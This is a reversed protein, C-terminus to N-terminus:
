LRISASKFYNLPEITGNRNKKLNSTIQDFTISNNLYAMRYSTLFTVSVLCIIGIVCFKVLKLKVFSNVFITVLYVFPIILFIVSGFFARLPTEPALALSYAAAISGIFFSSVFVFDKMTLIKLILLLILLSLIGILLETYNNFYISTVQRLNAIFKPLTIIVNSRIKTGTAELVSLSGIFGAVLAVLQWLCVKRSRFSFYCFFLFWIILAAPGSNENTAGAMFSIFSTM